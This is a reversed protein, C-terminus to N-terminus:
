RSMNKYLLAAYTNIAAVTKSDRLEGKFIMEQLESLEYKEVNIEEMPDLHIEGKSLDTALYIDIKEDCVAVTTNITLLYEIKGAKFGTEEELERTACELTPEDPSDLKGAPIELTFRDLANRYQRVMLIKGDNDVAIVAAAGNHHVFDWVAVEGGLEVTDAYFDVVAGKHVLERKLRKIPEMDIEMEQSKYGVHWVFKYQGSHVLERM